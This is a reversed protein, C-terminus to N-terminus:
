NFFWFEKFKKLFKIDEDERYSMYFCSISMIVCFALLFSGKDGNIVLNISSLLNFIAFIRFIVMFKNSSKIEKEIKEKTLNEM